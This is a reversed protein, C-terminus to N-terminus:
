NKFQRLTKRQSPWVGCWLITKILPTSGMSDARPGSPYLYIRPEDAAWYRPLRRIVVYSRGLFKFVRSTPPTFTPLVSAAKSFRYAM